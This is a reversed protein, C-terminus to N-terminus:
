LKLTHVSNFVKALIDPPTSTFFVHHEDLDVALSMTRARTGAKVMARIMIDLGVGATFGSMSFEM